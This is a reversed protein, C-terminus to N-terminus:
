LKDNEGYQGGILKLEKKKGLRAMHYDFFITEVSTKFKFILQVQEGRDMNNFNIGEYYFACAGLFIENPDYVPILVTSKVDDTGTVEAITCHVKNTDAVTFAEAPRVHKDVAKIQDFWCAVRSYPIRQMKSILKQLPGSRSDEALVSVFMNCLKSTAVTGNELQIYQVLDMHGKDKYYDCLDKIKRIVRQSEEHEWENYKERAKELKFTNVEHEKDRIKDRVNLYIGFVTPVVVYFLPGIKDLLEILDDM